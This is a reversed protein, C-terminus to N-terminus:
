VRSGEDGELLHTAERGLLPAVTEDLYRDTQQRARGTFRAPDGLEGLRDHVAAFSPDSAIREFLDNPAGEEVMKRRVEIAHRRLAEHLTQRDGGATTAAMLLEEMALFPVEEALRRRVVPHNVTLGEVIEAYLILVADVALFVEPLALRRNASDDLTREFWQAAATLPPNLSAALVFRCLSTIREAKMPNRKYPMASSGIQKTGFPELMEGFSQSLRLDVAFKAASQAVGSLVGIVRSDIKRPYTQGSVPLVQDFGFARAVDRDVQDVRDENGGFLKMFSEQTGTVGKVGLFPLTGRVHILDTLDSALDQIWLCARRGVTTPQAPQLHTYALAPVDRHRRAFAELRKIVALIRGRTLDLGERLLMLDANDTVYCSTAGLHIIPRASPCQEGYAHVHAMVDHRLEKELAAVRDFPIDEVNEKLARIQEDTIGLGAAQEAEALAIWLRRWTTFKRQPSFLELMRRSAYREALPNSYRTPDAPHTM